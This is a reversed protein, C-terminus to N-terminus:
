EADVVGYTDNFMEERWENFYQELIFGIDEWVVCDYGYQYVSNFINDELLKKASKINSIYDVYWDETDTIIRKSITIKNMRICEKLYEGIAEIITEM